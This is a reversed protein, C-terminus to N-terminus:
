HHNPGDQGHDDRGDRDDDAFAGFSAVMNALVLAANPQRPMATAPDILSGDARRFWGSVDVSVTLNAGDKDVTLPATLAIRQRADVDSTYTFPRGDFTGEVRVSADRLEPHARQFALDDATEDDPKRWRLDVHEYDGAPVRVSLPSVVGGALPIEVLTPGIELEACDDGAGAACGASARRELEVERLVMQVRTLVLAHTGDSITVDLAGLRAAPTPVGVTSRAAFSLSVIRTAAPATADSCAALAAASLVALARFAYTRAATTM